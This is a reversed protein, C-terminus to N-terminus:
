PVFLSPGAVSSSVGTRSNPTLLQGVIAIAPPANSPMAIVVAEPTVKDRSVVDISLRQCTTFQVKKSKLESAVQVTLGYKAMWKVEKLILPDMDAFLFNRNSTCFAFFGTFFLFALTLIGEGM